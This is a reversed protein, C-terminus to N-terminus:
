RDSEWDKRTVWERFGKPMWGKEEIPAFFEEIIKREEPSLVEVFADALYVWDEQPGPDPVTYGRYVPPPHMPDQMTKGNWINTPEQGERMNYPIGWLNGLIPDRYLVQISDMLEKTIKVVQGQYQLPKPADWGASKLFVWGEEPAELLYVRVDSFDARLVFLDNTSLNEDVKWGIGDLWKHILEIRKERQEVEWFSDGPCSDEHFTCVLKEEPYFRQLEEVMQRFSEETCSCRLLPGEITPPRKMLESGTWKSLCCPVGDIRWHSM